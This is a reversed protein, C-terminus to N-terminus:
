VPDFEELLELFSITKPKELYGPNKSLLLLHLIGTISFLILCVTIQYDRGAYVPFLFFVLVIYVALMMFWMIGVTSLNKRVHMLPQKLM